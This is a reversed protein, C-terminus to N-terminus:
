FFYGINLSLGYSTWSAEKIFTIIAVPGIVPDSDFGANATSNIFGTSQTSWNQYKFEVEAQFHTCFKWSFNSYVVHGFSMGGKRRDSFAEPVERELLWAGRWNTLHFEYGLNLLFRSNGRAFFDFGLWPGNWISQFKLGNFIPANANKLHTEQEDYGWGGIFGLSCRPNILILYGLGAEGDQTRGQQNGKLVSDSFNGRCIWGYSYFGRIYLDDNFAVLAKVGTEYIRLKRATLEDDLMEFNNSFIMGTTCDIRDFRAGGHVLLYTNLTLCSSNQCCTTDLSSPFSRVTEQADMERSLCGLGLQFFIYM